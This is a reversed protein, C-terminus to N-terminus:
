SSTKAETLIPPVLVKLSRKYIPPSHVRFHSGVGKMLESAKRLTAEKPISVPVSSSTPVPLSSSSTVSTSM